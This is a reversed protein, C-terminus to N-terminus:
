MTICPGRLHTGLDGLSSVWQHCNCLVMKVNWWLVVLWVLGVPPQPLQRENVKKKGFPTSWYFHTWVTHALHKYFSLCVMRMLAFQYNWKFQDDLILNSVPNTCKLSIHFLKLHTVFVTCLRLSILTLPSQIESSRNPARALDTNGKISVWSYWQLYYMVAYATMNKDGITIEKVSDVLESHTSMKCDETFSLFVWPRELKDETCM